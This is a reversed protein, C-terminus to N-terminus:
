DLDFSLDDDELYITDDQESEDDINMLLDSLSGLEDDDNSLALEDAADLSFDQDDPSETLSARTTKDQESMDAVEQGKLTIGAGPLGGTEPKQLIMDGDLPLSLDPKHDDVLVEDVSDDLLDAVFGDNEDISDDPGTKVWVGYEDLSSEDLADSIDPLKKSM